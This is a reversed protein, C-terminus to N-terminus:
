KGNNTYSVCDGQNKFAPTNFQKWGDGKCQDKSTPPGITPEFDYVTNNGGIGITAKDLFGTFGGPYPEGARFLLQSSGSDENVHGNPFAALISSWTRYRSTNGDPWHGFSDYGSWTWLAGSATADWEQWTDFVVTGNAAPVYVLRKQYGTTPISCNVSPCVGPGFDVDFNLYVACENSAAACSGTQGASPQFTNFKLASIASLPTNGYMSTAVNWRQPSVAGADDHFYVSGVGAPRNSPGSVCKYHAPDEVLSPIDDTDDYFYWSTPSLTAPTVTVTSSAAFGSVVSSVGLVSALGLAALASRLRVFSM